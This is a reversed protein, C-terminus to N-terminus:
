AFLDPYIKKLLDDWLTHITFPSKTESNSYACVGIANTVPMLNLAPEPFFVSGGTPSFKKLSSIDIDNIKKGIFHNVSFAKIARKFELSYSKLSMSTESSDITYFLREAICNMLTSLDVIDIRVSAVTESIAKLDFKRIYKLDNLVAEFVERGNKEEYLIIQCMETFLDIAKKSYALDTCFIATKELVDLTIINTSSANKEVFDNVVSIAITETSKPVQSNLSNLMKTYNYGNVDISTEPAIYYKVVDKLIYWNDVLNTFCNTMVLIDIVPTELNIIKACKKLVDAIEWIWLIQLDKCNKGLGFKEFYQIVGSKNSNDSVLPNIQYKTFHEELNTSKNFLNIQPQDDQLIPSVFLKYVNNEIIEFTGKLELQKTDTDRKAGAFLPYGTSKIYRINADSPPPNKIRYVETNIGFAVGHSWTLLLRKKANIKTLFYELGAEWSKPVGADFEFDKLENDLLEFFRLDFRLRSGTENVLYKEIMFVRIRSTNDFGAMEKKIADYAEEYVTADEAIEHVFFVVLWDLSDTVEPM